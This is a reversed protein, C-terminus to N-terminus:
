RIIITRTPVSPFGGFRKSNSLQKCRSLTKNCETEGGSYGCETSKFKWRCYNRSFKRSPLTLGTIDFKSSLNFVVNNQDATYSDIYFIDEIYADPDDLHNAWVTKIKVKKSRFDYLELYGQILRSVNALTVRIKDIEGQKNEKINEHTIPFKGYTIGDFTVDTPNSAYNLDTSSGDYDVVTYLYIPQNEQKDKETLFTNNPNRM